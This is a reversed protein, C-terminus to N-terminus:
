SRGETGREEGVCGCEKIDCWGGEWACVCMCQPCCVVYHWRRCYIFGDATVTHTAVTAFWFM